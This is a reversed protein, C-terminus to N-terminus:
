PVVVTTIESEAFPRSFPEIYDQIGTALPSNPDPTVPLAQKTGAEIPAATTEPEAQDTAPATIAQVTTFAILVQRCVLVVQLSNESKIDTEVTLSKILMSEYKRKGTYITFPIASSQLDLLQQYIDQMKSTGRGTNNNVAAGISVIETGFVDSLQAVALNGIASGGITKAGDSTLQAQVSGAAANGLASALNGAIGGVISNSQTQVSNSWACRVVVEAPRKFTHDTIMAGSEVPHETIQLEDTHREEVTINAIIGIPNSGTVGIARRVGPPQVGGFPGIAGAVIVGIDSSM